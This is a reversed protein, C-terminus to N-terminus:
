MPKTSAEPKSATVLRRCVDTEESRCWLDYPGIQGARVYDKWAAAFGPDRQLWNLIDVRLTRDETCPAFSTDQCRDVLVPSPHWRALDAAVANRTLTAAERMAAPEATGNADATREANVIAPLMWLCMFRSGWEWDRELVQEFVSETAIALILVTANSPIGSSVARQAAIRDDTYPHAARALQLPYCLVIAAVFMLAAGAAALGTPLPLTRQATWLLWCDIVIVGFLMDFFAIAPLFHSEHGKLQAVVALTAGIGALTLVTALARHPLHRCLVAWLLVLGLM